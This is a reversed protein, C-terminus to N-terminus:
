LETGGCRWTDTALRAALAPSPPSPVHRLDWPGAWDRDGAYRYHGTVDTADAVLTADGTDRRNAYPAECWRGVVRGDIIRGRFMGREYTYAGRVRDGSVSFAMDGYHGRWHGSALAAAVRPGRDPPIDHSVFALALALVFVIPQFRSRPAPQTSLGRRLAAAFAAASPFRDRPNTAMATIVLERLWSPATDVATTTVGDRAPWGVFVRFAMAGLSYVDSLPTGLEGRRQEPPWYGPTGIATGPSTLELDHLAERGVDSGLPRLRRAIGWDIIVPKGAADILVNNPKLDRHIVGSRHVCDIVEAVEAVIALGARWDADRRLRAEFTEGDVLRTVFYARGRMWGLEHIPPVSPHNLSSLIAAERGLRNQISLDTSLAVKIAVRRGLLRDTAALVRGMGGRAIEHHVHFRAEDFANDIPTVARARRPMSVTVPSALWDISTTV